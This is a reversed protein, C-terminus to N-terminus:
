PLGPDARGTPLLCRAREQLREAEPTRKNQPLSFRREPLSKESLLSFPIALGPSRRRHSFPLLRMSLLPAFMGQGSRRDCHFCSTDGAKWVGMDDMARQGRRRHWANHTLWRTSNVQMWHPTARRHASENYGRAPAMEPHAGHQHTRLCFSATMIWNGVMAECISRGCMEEGTHETPRPCLWPKSALDVTPQSEVGEPFCGRNQRQCDPCRVEEGRHEKVLLRIDPVDYVQRYARMSGRGASRDRHCHLGYAPHHMLIEDAADMQALTRGEQGTQGGSPTCWGPTRRPFRAVRPAHSRNVFARATSMSLAAPRSDDHVGTPVTAGPSRSTYLREIPWTTSRYAADAVSRGSRVLSANGKTRRSVRRDPTTLRRIYRERDTTTRSRGAPQSVTGRVFSSHLPGARVRHPV